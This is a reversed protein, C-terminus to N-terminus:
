PTTVHESDEHTRVMFACPEPVGFGQSPPANFRTSTQSDLCAFYINGLWPKPTRQFTDQILRAEEPPGSRQEQKGQRM